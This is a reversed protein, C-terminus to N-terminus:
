PHFQAIKWAPITESSCAWWLVAVVKDVNVLKQMASTADKWSCKGDEVVLEVQRGDIWWAANIEELVTTYWHMVDSGYTSAPWSLPAIVWLKIPWTEQKVVKKWTNVTSSTNTQQAGCGVLVVSAFLMVWLLVHKKM